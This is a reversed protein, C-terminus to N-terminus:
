VPQEYDLNNDDHRAEGHHTRCQKLDFALTTKLLRHCQGRFSLRRGTTQQEETSHGAETNRHEDPEYMRPVEYEVHRHM